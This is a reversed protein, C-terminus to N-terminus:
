DIKHPVASCDDEDNDFDYYLRNKVDIIVNGWNTYIQSLMYATVIKNGDEFAMIALKMAKIVPSVNCATYHKQCFERWEYSIKENPIELCNEYGKVASLMTM